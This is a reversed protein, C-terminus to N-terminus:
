LPLKVKVPKEGVPLRLRHPGHQFVAAGDEIRLLTLTEVTEGPEVPRGNVLACPKAGQILGTLHVAIERVADPPVSRVAFPNIEETENAPVSAALLDIVGEANPLLLLGSETPVTEALKPQIEVAAAPKVSAPVPTAPKEELQRVREHLAENHAVLARLHQQQRLAKEQWELSPTFPPTTARAPQPPASQCGALVLILLIEARM